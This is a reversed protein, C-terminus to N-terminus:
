TLIDPNLSGQRYGELDLTVFRLGLARLDAILEIRLNGALVEILRDSPLEIRAVEGHLRVRVQDFGRRKLAVEAAEVLKLRDETIIEGKPFRSSLCADAPKSWNSLGLSRALERVQEKSMGAELLPSRVGFETAARLGPRYDALDDQNTGNAIWAIGLRSAVQALNVYLDHKCTYCRNPGNEFFAPDEVVRSEVFLHRAGLDEALAAASRRESEALTPSVSTVGLARDGLTDRAVKLVLSSDIGGSFAVLVSDMERFISTLRDHAATTETM